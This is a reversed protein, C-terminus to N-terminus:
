DLLNFIASNLCTSVKSYAEQVETKLGAIELAAAAALTAHSEDKWSVSDRLELRQSRESGLQRELSCVLIDLTVRRGAASM